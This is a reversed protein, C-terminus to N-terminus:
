MLKFRDLLASLVVLVSKVMSFHGQESSLLMKQKEQGTGLSCGLGLAGSNAAFQGGDGLHPVSSSSESSAM